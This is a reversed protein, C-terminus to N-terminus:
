TERYATQRIPPSIVQEPNPKAKGAGANRPNAPTRYVIARPYMLCRDFTLFSEHLM